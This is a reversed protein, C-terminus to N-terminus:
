LLDDTDILNAYAVVSIPDSNTCLEAAGCIDINECM